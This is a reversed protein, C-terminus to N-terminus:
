LGDEDFLHAWVTKNSPPGLKAAPIRYSFGGKPGRNPAYEIEGNERLTHLVSSVSGPKKGLDKAIQTASRGPNFKLHQLIADRITPRM